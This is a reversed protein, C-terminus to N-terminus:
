EFWSAWECFAISLDGNQALSTNASNICLDPADSGIVANRTRGQSDSSGGCSALAFIFSAVLACASKISRSM